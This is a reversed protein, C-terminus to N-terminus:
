RVETKIPEPLDYVIVKYNHAILTENIILEIRDWKGGALGCGIRPMHFCVEEQCREELGEGLLEILKNLGKELWETRIPPIGNDDTYIGRQGVINAIVITSNPCHYLLVEGPGFPIKKSDYRGYAWDQYDIKWLHWKDILSLVFGNGALGIDNVIHVIIDIGVQKPSTADGIVYEIKSM